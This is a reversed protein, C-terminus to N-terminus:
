SALTDFVQLRTNCLARIMRIEMVSDPAHSLAAGLELFARCRVAPLDRDIGQKRPRLEVKPAHQEFAPPDIRRRRNPPFQHLRTRRKALDAHMGQQRSIEVDPFGAFRLGHDGFFEAGQAVLRTRADLINGEHGPRLFPGFVLPQRGFCARLKDAGEPLFAVGRGCRRAIFAQDLVIPAHHVGQIVM